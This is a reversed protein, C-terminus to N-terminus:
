EDKLRKGCKPCYDFDIRCRGNEVYTMHDCEEAYMPDIEQDPDIRSNHAEILQDFRNLIIGNTQNNSVACNWENASIPEIRKM